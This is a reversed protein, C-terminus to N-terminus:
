KESVGNEAKRVIGPAIFHYKSMGIIVGKIAKLLSSEFCHKINGVELCYRYYYFYAREKGARYVM